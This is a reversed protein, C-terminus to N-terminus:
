QLELNDCDVVATHYVVVPNDIGVVHYGAIGAGAEIDRAMDHAVVRNDFPSRELHNDVVHCLNRGLWPTCSFITHLHISPFSQGTRSCDQEKHHQIHNISM